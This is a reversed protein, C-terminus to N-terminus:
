ILEVRSTYFIYAKNLVHLGNYTYWIINYKQKNINNQKVADNNKIIPRGFVM